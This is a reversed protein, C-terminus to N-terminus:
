KIYNLEPSVQLCPQKTKLAVACVGAATHARRDVRQRRLVQARLILAVMTCRGVLDASVVFLFVLNHLVFLGYTCSIISCLTWVSWTLLSHATLTAQPFRWARQVQPIYHVTVLMAALLYACHLTWVDWPWAWHEFVPITLTM